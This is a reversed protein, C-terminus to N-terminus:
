LPISSDIPLKRKMVIEGHDTEGTPIFGYSRYLRTATANAPQCSLTIEKAGETNLLDLIRAMAAKGYGKGQFRHDIMLRGIKYEDKKQAISLMTFGVMTDASYIAFVRAIDSFVYAQALSKINSAVFAQQEEAVSLGFCEM